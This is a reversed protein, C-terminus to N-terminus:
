TNQLWLLEEEEEESKMFFSPTTSITPLGKDRFMEKVLDRM